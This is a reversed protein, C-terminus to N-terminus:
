SACQTCLRSRLDTHGVRSQPTFTSFLHTLRVDNFSTISFCDGKKLGAARFGAVLKRVITRGQNYSLTRTPNDIDHYVPKDLDYTPSGFSFSVLDEEPLPFTETHLWPM